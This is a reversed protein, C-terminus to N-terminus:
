TLSANPEACRAWAEVSPMVWEHCFDAAPRSISFSSSYRPLASCCGAFGNTAMRPPALTLSLISTMRLRIVLTSASIMPPPM